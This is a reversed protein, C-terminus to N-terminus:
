SVVITIEANIINKTRYVRYNTTQPNATANTVSVLGYSWGNQVNSFFANDSSNAMVVNLNTANDKFGTSATPSGFSDPYCIYKYDGVTNAFIYTGNESSSLTSTLAEIGAENLTTLSSNGYYLKWLWNVTFLSSNFSVANTNTATMRWSHSGPSTKFITTPLVISETNNNALGSGLVVSDTIDNISLTNAQVNSSNSINWIFTKSGTVESGVEITTSQGLISFSLFAPAVYPYLIADLTDQITGAPIYTNAVAGGVTVTVPDIRIYDTDGSGGGIGGILDWEGSIFSGLTTNTNARWWALKEVIGVTVPHYVINGEVYRRTSSWPNSVYKFNDDVESNYLERGIELRFKLLEELSFAM